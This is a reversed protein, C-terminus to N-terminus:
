LNRAMEAIHSKIQDFLARGKEATAAMPDGMTGSATLKKTRDYVSIGGIGNFEAGGLSSKTVFPPSPSKVYEARARGMDVNEGQLYLMVSTMVEGAHTFKKEHLMASNKAFADSLQWVGAMAIRADDHKRVLEHAVLDVAPSNGAHGNVFIIKRFGSSFLSDCYDRLYSLVTEMRLSIVGPYEFFWGSYGIPLPPGALAGAEKAAADALAEAAYADVGLPLHTGEQEVSGLPILVVTKGTDMESIEEWTCAALQYKKM